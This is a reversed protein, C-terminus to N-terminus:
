GKKHPQIIVAVREAPKIDDPKSAKKKKPRSSELFKITSDREYLNNLTAMNMGGKHIEKSLQSVVSPHGTKKLYEIKEVMDGGVKLSKITDFESRSVFGHKAIMSIIKDREAKNAHKYFSVVEKMDVASKDQEKIGVEKRDGKFYSNLPNMESILAHSSMSFTLALVAATIKSLKM